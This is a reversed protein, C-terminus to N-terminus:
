NKSQTKSSTGEATATIAQAVIRLDVPVVLKSPPYVGDMDRMRTDSAVAKVFHDYRTLAVALAAELADERFRASSVTVIVEEPKDNRVVITVVETRKFLKNWFGEKEKTQTEEIHEDFKANFSSNRVDYSRHYRSLRSHLYKDITPTLKVKLNLNGDKIEWFFYEPLAPLNTREDISLTFEQSFFETTM